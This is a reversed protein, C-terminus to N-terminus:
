EGAYIWENEAIALLDFRCWFDKGVPSCAYVGSELTETGKHLHAVRLQHWRRGDDSNELLFDNGNRSIRYSMERQKSSIDQTAWDSFGLNTVVSGLRSHSESEYEISLKIWNEPDIRLMLGCQDYKERPRFEVHATLSFDGTLRTFLCHGNDNQFGYYTRQWFDTKEDTTIELGAGLQFRAPPNFWYFKEPISPQLFKEILHIM